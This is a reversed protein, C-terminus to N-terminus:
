TAPPPVTVGYRARLAAVHDRSGPWSDREEWGAWLEPYSLGVFRIDSEAVLDSFLDVEARHARFDPLEACNTPEWFVYLLVQPGANEGLSHRMGLYHKVLQAADLLAFHEPDQLLSEFVNTWAPDALRKITCPYSSAFKAVKTGLFETFKSEVAVTGAPGQAFFDVNPPNGPLGTPLKKEFSAKTFGDIGALTL